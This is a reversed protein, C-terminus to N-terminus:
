TITSSTLFSVLSNRIYLLMGLIDGARASNVFIVYFVYHLCPPMAVKMGENSPVFLLIRKCLAFCARPHLLTQIYLFPLWFGYISSSCVVCHVFSFTCFSLCLDVFCVCLVLSRTVRVGSFFSPSSLHEPLVIKITLSINSCKTILWNGIRDFGVFREHMLYLYIWLVASSRVHRNEYHLYTSKYLSLIIM